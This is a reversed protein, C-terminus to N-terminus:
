GVHQMWALFSGGFRFSLRAKPAQNCSHIILYNLPLFYKRITRSYQLSILSKYDGGMLIQIHMEKINPIKVTPLDLFRTTSYLYPPPIRGRPYVLRGFDLLSIAGGGNGVARPICPRRFKSHNPSQGRYTLRIETLPVLAQWYAQGRVGSKQREPPGASSYLM